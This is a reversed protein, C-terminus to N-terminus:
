PAPRALPARVYESGAFWIAVAVLPPVTGPVQNTIAVLWGFMLAAVAVLVAAILRRRGAGALLTACLAPALIDLWGFLARDVTADQLSPLPTGGASPPVVAHLAQTGPRVQDTFVLIADVVALVVLGTAVAWPPTIAAILAALTLCAAGILALGALDATLGDARWALLWLGPAAAAYAWPLRWGWVHGAAAAAVPTGFTALHAVAEVSWDSGRTAALGIFFVAIPAAIGILKSNAARWPRRWAAAVLLGQFLCLTAFGPGYPFDV